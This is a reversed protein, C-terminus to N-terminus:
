RGNDVYYSPRECLDERHLEPLIHDTAPNKENEREYCAIGFSLCAGAEYSHLVTKMKLADLAGFLAYLETLAYSGAAACLERPLDLLHALRQSKLSEMVARDFRNAADRSNIRQSLDAAVIIATKRNLGAIATCIDHGLAFATQLANAQPSVIVVSGSFGAHQLYSLPVLAATDLRLPIGTASSWHNNLPLAESQAAVTEALLTDTTTKVTAEATGACSLCGSIFPATIVTAAQPYLNGHRGILILTDPKQDTLFAATKAMAAKTKNFRRKEDPLVAPAAAMFAAAICSQEM